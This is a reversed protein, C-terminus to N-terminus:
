TRPRYDDHTIVLRMGIGISFVLSYIKFNSFLKQLKM